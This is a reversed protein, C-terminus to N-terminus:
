KRYTDHDDVLLIDLVHMHLRDLMAYFGPDGRAVHTHTDIPELAALAQLKAMDTAAPPQSQSPFSRGRPSAPQRPAALALVLTASFIPILRRMRAEQRIFGHAAWAPIRAALGISILTNGQLLGEGGTRQLKHKGCLVVRERITGFLAISDRRS